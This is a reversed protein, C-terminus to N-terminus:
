LCFVAYSIRMLSQLESTHEESRAMGCHKVTGGVAEVPPELVDDEIMLVLVHHDELSQYVPMVPRLGPRQALKVEGIRWSAFPAGTRRDVERGRGVPKVPLRIALGADTRVRRRDRRGAQAAGRGRDQRLRPPQAEPGANFRGSRVRTTSPFLTDPRTARPPRRIM